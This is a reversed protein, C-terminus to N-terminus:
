LEDARTRAEPELGIAKFMANTDRNAAAWNMTHFSALPTAYGANRFEKAPIMPIEPSKELLTRANELEFARRDDAKNRGEGVANTPAKPQKALQQRLQTVQGRLRLLEEHERRLRELEATESPVPQVPPPVALEARLRANEGRLRTNAQHQLVLPTTVGAAFVAALGIKTKTSAM